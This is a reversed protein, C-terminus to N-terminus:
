RQCHKFQASLNVDRIRKLSHDSTSPRDGDKTLWLTGRGVGSGSVSLIGKMRGVSTTRLSKMMGRGPMIEDVKTASDATRVIEMSM